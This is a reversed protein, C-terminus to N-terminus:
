MWRKGGNIGLWDPKLDFSLGTVYLLGVQVFRLSFSRKDCVSCPKHVREFRLATLCCKYSSHLDPVCEWIENGALRGM